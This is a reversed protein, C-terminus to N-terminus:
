YVDIPILYTLRWSQNQIYGASVRAFTGAVALQELIYRIGAPSFDIATM